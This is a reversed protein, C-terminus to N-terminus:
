FGLLVQGNIGPQESLLNFLGDSNDSFQLILLAKCRTADNSVCALLYTCFVTSVATILSIYLPCLLANTSNQVTKPLKKELRFM